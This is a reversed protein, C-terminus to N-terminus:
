EDSAFFGVIELEDPSSPNPRFHRRMYTEYDDFNDGRPAQGAWLADCEPCMVATAELKRLLVVRLWDQGCRPCAVKEISASM